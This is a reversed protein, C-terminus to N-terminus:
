PLNLKIYREIKNNGNKLKKEVAKNPRNIPIKPEHIKAVNEITKEKVRAM